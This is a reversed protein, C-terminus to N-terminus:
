TSSRRRATTPVTQADFEPVAKKWTATLVVDGQVTEPVESVEVGDVTVSWGQFVFGDWEPDNIEDTSADADFAPLASDYAATVTYETFALGSVGDRYTVSQDNASWQAYLTATTDGEAGSALNKVTAGALYTTGSGDAATNWCKFTYGTRTPTASSLKAEADYAVTQSDPLGSVSTGDAVNADYSITYENSAWQAYLTIDSGAEAISAAEGSTAYSTGSGDAKTNWSLIRYGERYFVTEDALTSTSAVYQTFNSSVADDANADYTITCGDVESHLNYATGTSLNLMDVVTPDEQDDYRADSDDTYWTGAIATVYCKLSSIALIDDAYYTATNDTIVVSDSTVYLTGGSVNSSLGGGASSGTATNGSITGGSLTVTVGSIIIGGGYSATNDSLIGGSMVLTSSSCDTDIAGGDKSVTNGSITGGRIELYISSSSSDIGSGSTTATNVCITGGSMVMSTSSGMYVGGGNAAKNSYLAGSELEFGASSNLYVAGGNSSATNSSLTGGDMTFSAGSGTLYVGAGYAASNSSISGSTLTFSSGSGTLYVAGGYSSATNSKISGGSMAFTGSSDVYVGGGNTASGGTISGGEMAFSGGSVYVSRGSSDADIAGDGESSSDMLTLSGSSSVTVISGSGTGTLTHGNLDLNVDSDVTIDSANEIEGLDIDEGLYYNGESLTGGTFSDSTLETGEAAWASGPALAAGLALALACLAAAARATASKKAIASEM